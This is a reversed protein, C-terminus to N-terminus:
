RPFTKLIYDRVYATRSNNATRKNWVLYLHNTPALDAPTVSILRGS